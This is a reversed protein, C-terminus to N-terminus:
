SQFSPGSADAPIPSGDRGADRFTRRFLNFRGDEASPRRSAMTDPGHGASTFTSRVMVPSPLAAPEDRTTGTALLSDLQISTVSHQDLLEALTARIRRRSAPDPPLLARFGTGLV